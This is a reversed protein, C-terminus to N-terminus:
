TIDWAKPNLKKESTFVIKTKEQFMESTAQNQKDRNM